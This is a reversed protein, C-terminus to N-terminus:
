QQEHCFTCDTSANKAKHCDMCGGMSINTARALQDSEAVKGHCDECTNGAKVHTRHSFSVFGPIEYVRVWPISRNNKAYATL